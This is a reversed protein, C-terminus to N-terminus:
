EGLHECLEEEYIKRLAHNAWIFLYPRWYSKLWPAWNSKMGLLPLLNDKIIKATSFFAELFDAKRDPLVRMGRQKLFLNLSDRAEKSSPWRFPSNSAVLKKRQGFLKRPVGAEEALRRPIPRDYDTGLTWPLMEDTKSIAQIQAAREIGWWPVLSLFLGKSLRYECLLLDADGAPERLGQKNCNWVTDGYAGSFFLTQSKSYDFLSMHRASERGSGAWVWIEDRYAAKSNRYVRCDFGLIRAIKEGSDSGRWFSAPNEFTVAKRCGAWRAVVATAVSDYGTSIGVIMEIRNKRGKSQTNLGLTRASEKLFGKYINFNDFSPSCLPKPSITITGNSLILNDFYNLYLDPGSSPFRHNCSRVGITEVTEIDNTYNTYNEQLWLGAAALLGPLTNSVFICSDKEVYWLRDIGSSSSVFVAANRRLRVGSGFFLDTKDFDGSAFDGCWVGEVAWEPHTELMSGHYIVIKETGKRHKAVWALKPWQAIEKYALEM